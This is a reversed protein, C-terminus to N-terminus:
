SDGGTKADLSMLNNFNLNNIIDTIKDRLQTLLEKSMVSVDIEKPLAVVTTDPFLETIHNVYSNAADASIKSFDVKVIIIDGGDKYISQLSAAQHNDETVDADRVTDKLLSNLGNLDFEIVVRPSEAFSWASEYKINTAGYRETFRKIDEIEIPIM